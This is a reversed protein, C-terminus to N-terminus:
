RAIKEPAVRIRRVRVIHTFKEDALTNSPVKDLYANFAFAPQRKKNMIERLYSQQKKLIKFIRM